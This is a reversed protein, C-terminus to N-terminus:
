QFPHTGIISRQDETTPVSKVTGASLSINPPAVKNGIQVKGVLLQRMQEFNDFITEMHSVQTDM